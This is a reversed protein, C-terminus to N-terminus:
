VPFPGRIIKNPVNPKFHGNCNLCRISQEAMVAPKPQADVHFKQVTKCHPCEVTVVVYRDGLM